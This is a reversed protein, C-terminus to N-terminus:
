AEALNWDVQSLLWLLPFEIESQCTRCFLQQAIFFRAARSKQIRIRSRCYPCKLFDRLSRSLSNVVPSRGKVFLAHYTGLAVLSAWAKFRPNLGRMRSYLAIQVFMAFILLYAIRFYVFDYVDTDLSNKFIFNLNM